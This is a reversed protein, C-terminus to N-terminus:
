VLCAVLSSGEFISFHFSVRQSPHCVSHMQGILIAFTNFMTSRGHTWKMCGAVSGLLMLNFSNGFGLPTRAEKGSILGACRPGLAPRDKALKMLLQTQVTRLENSQLIPTMVAQYFIDLSQDVAFLFVSVEICM